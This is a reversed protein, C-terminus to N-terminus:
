RRRATVPASAGRRARPLARDARLRDVILTAAVSAGATSLHVGDAQRASITRGRFRIAQRFRGGPTFVPVLDIVRVGEGARRGAVRIAANVARYVRAFAGGRPTPLTLWYVLSRGGRRYARMMAEVRRAYEATWAADCCDASRGSPTRMPFGDNAGLFVVTVDPKFGGAQSRAKRNWNLMAPKSIGTSIHAESRVVAGRRRALRAKLHGDVIQIMSDGTALLRLRGIRAFAPRRPERTRLRLDGAPPVVQVCALPDAVAECPGGDRWSLVARWVVVRGLRTRLAAAPARVTLVGGRLGVRARRLVRLPGVAVGRADISALTASLRGGREAVCVRRRSRAAPDLVICVFRGERPQVDAAAVPASLRLEFLLDAGLQRLQASVVKVSPGPPPPAPQQAAAPASVTLLAACALTTVLARRRM